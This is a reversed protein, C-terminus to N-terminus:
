QRELEILFHDGLGRLIPLGALVGDLKEALRWCRPFRGHLHALYPPPLALLLARYGVVRFAPQFHRAFARPTYYYTTVRDPLAPSVTGQAMGGWRRIARRWEGHVAYWAFEFPHYRNIASILVRGKPRILAALGEAVAVLDPECNLPGFSSYAGAFAGPGYHSLLSSLDAAGLRHLTVREGIGQDRCRVEAQALMGPAIDMATVRVGTRALAAAEVGTGCGIELVHDGTHWLAGLRRYVLRRVHAVAPNTETESDYRPAVASFAAATRTRPDAM